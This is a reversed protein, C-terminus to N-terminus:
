MDTVSAVPLVRELTHPLDAVGQRSRQPADAVDERSRRAMQFGSPGPWCFPCSHRLARFLIPPAGSSSQLSRGASSQSSCKRKKFLPIYSALSASFHNSPSALTRRM